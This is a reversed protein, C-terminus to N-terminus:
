SEVLANETFPLFAAKLNQLITGITRLIYSQENSLWM